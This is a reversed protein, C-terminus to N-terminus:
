VKRNTLRYLLHRHLFHEKGECEHLIFHVSFLVGYVFVLMRLTTM